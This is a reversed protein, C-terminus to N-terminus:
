KSSILVPASKQLCMGVELWWFSPPSWPRCRALIRTTGSLSWQSSTCDARDDLTTAGLSRTTALWLALACPLMDTQQIDVEKMNVISNKVKENGEVIIMAMLINSEMMERILRRLTTRSDREIRGDSILFVIQMSAVDRYPEDLLAMMASEVCLATRTRQQRFQFCSTVRIGSDNTFPQNFPHILQMEDGFSAIGVEGIELQSMGTALTAMAKLAMEGTGSKEMSESDDVAVLVRYNRKAPKTRRLWIKDKRYSSAIYGIVRKMNIRKGTRYDGRLKSAVLPEMVLRLKECLRRALPNTERQISGWRAKAEDHQMHSIHLMEESQVLRGTGTDMSGDAVYLQSLDSVARSTVNKSTDADYDDDTQAASISKEKADDNDDLGLEMQEPEDDSGRRLKEKGHVADSKEMETRNEARIKQERESEMKEVKIEEPRSNEDMAGLTQTSWKENEKAYEFDGLANDDSDRESHNMDVGDDANEVKSQVVNLRQHWFKKADGLSQSPYPSKEPFTAQTDDQFVNSLTSGQYSTPGSGNQVSEERANVESSERPSERPKGGEADEEAADDVVDNGDVTSVGLGSKMLDESSMNKLLQEAENGEQIDKSPDEDTNGGVHAASEEQPFQEDEEHEVDDDPDNTERDSQESADTEGLADESQRETTENKDDADEGNDELNLDDEIKMSEDDCKDPDGPDDDGQDLDGRDDRVEVGHAEERMDENEDNLLDQSASTEDPDNQDMGDEARSAPKEEQEQDDKRSAKDDKSVMENSEQMGKVGKGEEFKEDKSQNKDEEETDWMKEDVVQENEGPDDGMERDLEERQDEEDGDNDEEEEQDPVDYMEGEFDNEMEMGKEADEKDLKGSGDKQQQDLTSDDKTGLLQEENEIEDTVDVRGEGEGMGTGNTDEGFTLNGEGEGKAGEEVQDSCFGRALLTRFVRLIIYSLKACSRYFSIYHSVRHKIVTVARQCLLSVDASLSTCFNLTEERINPNLSIEHLENLVAESSAKLRSIQLSMLQISAKKHCTWILESEDDPETAVEQVRLLASEITDTCLRQFRNITEDHQDRSIPRENGTYITETCVDAAEAAKDIVAVCGAFCSDPLFGVDISTSRNNELISRAVYLKEKMLKIRNFHLSTALSQNIIPHFQSDVEDFWGSLESITRSAWPRGKNEDLLHKVAQVMLFLQWIAEKANAFLREFSSIRQATLDSIRMLEAGRFEFCQLTQSLERVNRILSTLTSRQQVLLYVTLDAYGLMTQRQRQTLDRCQNMNAEPRLRNLEVLCRLFYDECSRVQKFQSSTEELFTLPSPLHLIEGFKRFEEPVAWKMHSYGHRKLERFFDLLAREKMARPTNKRQLADIRGLVATSLEEAAIAGRTSVGNTEIKEIITSMREAYQPIRSIRTGPSCSGFNRLRWDTADLSTKVTDEPVALDENVSIPFVAHVPPVESSQSGSPDTSDKIGRNQDKELFVSTNTQLGEDYETLIGMLKRHNREVTDALAYYSQQDWKALKVEKKLKEECPRRIQTITERLFTSFQEYYQCLSLVTRSLVAAIASDQIGSDQIRGQQFFQVGFSQLIQLRPLAEALPSTLIFTDLAKVLEVFHDSVPNACCLESNSVVLGKLAWRPVWEVDHSNGISDFIDMSASSLFEQFIVHIRIWHRRAERDCKKERARLLNPWSQLELKRLDAVLRRIEGLSEGIQVRISAHQEWDQAHKLVEGLGALIAASSTHLVDLKRVRDAVRFLSLLVDNGPFLRLLKGVRGMLREFPASLKITQEPNPYSQFDEKRDGPISEVKLSTSEFQCTPTNLSIALVHSGVFDSSKVASRDSFRSSFIQAAARYCFQFAKIREEASIRCSSFMKGHLWALLECDKSSLSPSFAASDNSEIIEGTSAVDSRLSFEKRHDPFVERFRQEAEDQDTRPLCRNTTVGVRELDAASLIFEIVEAWARVAVGGMGQVKSVVLMRFLESFAMPMLCVWQERTPVSPFGTLMVGQTLYASQPFSFCFKMFGTLDLNSRKTTCSLLHNFGRAVLCISGLLPSVIDEYHRFQYSSRKCFANWSRFLNVARPMNLDRNEDHLLGMAVESIQSEDLFDKGFSHFERYLDAFPFISEPRLIIKQKQKSIKSNLRDVREAQRSGHYACAFNISEYITEAVVQHEISAVEREMLDVKAAPKRGPDIISRPLLLHFRLLGLFVDPLAWDESRCLKQDVSVVRQLADLLPKLVPDVLRSFIADSSQQCLKVFRDKLPEAFCDMQKSLHSLQDFHDNSMSGKLAEVTEQFLYIIEWHHVRPINKEFALLRLLTKAQSRRAESNEITIFSTAANLPPNSLVVDGLLLLVTETKIDTLAREGNPATKRPKQFSDDMILDAPIELEMSTAQLTTGPDSWVRQFSSILLQGLLERVFSKPKISVWGEEELAWKLGQYAGLDTTNAWSSELSMGLFTSIKRKASASPCLTNGSLSFTCAMDQCLTRLLEEEEQSCLSELLPSLQVKSYKRMLFDSFRGDDDDYRGAKTQRHDLAELDPQNYTMDADLRCRLSDLRQWFEIQLSFLRQSIQQVMQDGRDVFYDLSGGVGMSSLALQFMSVADVFEGKLDDVGVVAPHREFSLFSLNIQGGGQDEFKHLLDHASLSRGLEKMSLWTDWVRARRPVIPRLTRRLSLVEHPLEEGGCLIRDVRSVIANLPMASEQCVPVTEIAGMAKRFWIWQVAFDAFDFGFSNDQEKYPMREVLNWLQDRRQAALLMKQSLSGNTVKLARMVSGWWKDFRDFFPALLPTVHCNIMNRDIRGEAVLRSVLLVSRASVDIIERKEWVSERLSQNFRELFGSRLVADWDNEVTHSQISRAIYRSNRALSHDLGGLFHCRESKSPARRDSFFLLMLLVEVSYAGECNKFVRDFMPLAFTPMMKRLLAFNASPTESAQVGMFIQHVRSAWAAEAWSPRFAWDLIRRRVAPVTQLSGIIQGNAEVSPAIGRYTDSSSLLGFRKCAVDSRESELRGAEQLCRIGGMAAADVRDVLGLHTATDGNFCVEVCRNRMARSVEGAEDDMTLFVRFNPHCKVVRRETGREVDASSELLLLYGGPELVSNLRDLVSSPCLNAHRLHVWHGKTMAHVLPGDRFEFHAQTQQQRTKLPEFFRVLEDMKSGRNSGRQKSSTLLVSALDKAVERDVSRIARKSVLSQILHFFFYARSTSSARRNTESDVFDACCFDILSQVKEFEQSGQDAQEFSGLLESVDSSPTLDIEVVTANVLHALTFIVHDKLSEAPGVLLCPWRREVCRAVTELYESAGLLSGFVETKDRQYYDENNIRHLKVDGVTVWSQSVRVGPPQSAGNGEKITGLIGRFTSGMKDRDSTTRLRHIYIDRVHKTDYIFGQARTSSAVLECWRLVDRLNFEWPSGAHGYEATEVVEEHIKTNCAVMKCVLERPISPFKSSVILEQDESTLAEVFVKIFRNLFSKPLGKRGGGQGLPNQAAFVRFSAPCQVTKGIEPIFISARHDLISNLGELVSQSALNLEDLLVWHGSKIAALLVGDTWKFIAGTQESSDSVVPMDSGLLDSMDTQESLNIRVLHHGSAAAFASVLTTKGVGPSGELLIPKPLQMGRLIRTLNSLATSAEFNFDAGSLPVPGLPVKFSNIGFTGNAVTVESGRTPISERSLDLLSRLFQDARHKVSESDSKSLATGLGLGDLHMLCAGHYLADAVPIKTDPTICAEVFGAWTIIDRLSLNLESFSTSADNCLDNNFWDAYQLIVKTIESAAQHDLASGELSQKLVLGIDAMDAVPPVWIETFRSRLAPSLERKGFDGGPNMTAFLQYGDLATVYTEDGGGDSSVGKEALILTRDPELVSNLRELVADEALSIEDLLIMDGSKMAQVVPGDSWEFLAGYRKYTSEIQEALETVKLVEESSCEAHLDIDNTGEEVKQRKSQRRGSAASGCIYKRVSRCLDVMARVSDDSLTLAEINVAFVFEPVTFSERHCSVTDSALLQKLCRLIDRPLESRGRVPRMAGILDSTETTAHCNVVRLRSHMLEAILQVVTTKGCGTEGVLLVPERRNMCHRVLTLLRLLSKTQAINSGLKSESSHTLMQRAESSTSFYLSDPVVQVKFQKEIEHLVRLKEEKTRLREALLMYGEQALEIKSSAGRHAWRLLDRSTMFGDKGLFVSTSNRQQQLSKMISVLIKAHSPAVGARLELITILETPPMDGVFIEVFRNRFARSLHKRGGYAGSPNQTAFLRFSPHPRVVENTEPICLERNDDLLRNLAELVESPALNLEDLIVWDGNRLARVLLGDNFGLNGNENSAFGGTYEQIDTHEHNNIRITRHGCLAACYEVLTTKGASTPGELLIPWPGSAIARALRRLNKKATPTLIFRPKESQIPTAWDSCPEPGKLIWFPQVSVYQGSRARGGPNRGPHDRERSTMVGGLYKEFVHALEGVSSLDLSGQFTLEFGELLARQLSLKQQEVFNRAATLARAFSRLSYRPKHGAGDVLVSEALSRSKLYVSVVNGVVETNEPATGSGNLCSGIYRGAIVRLELPDLIEDVHFETFRSRISPPLDKKGADTAPNMAAFLRFGAHRKVSVSDGRETLTLSSTSDDLLGCLRQLTESSALNIEDLLIWKGTKIAEVLIGERFVFALGTECAIQQQQFREAQDMFKEWDELSKRQTVDAKVRAKVKNLGMKAARQFCDALRAWQEKKLCASTFNLFAENQKRSFSSTFLDVFNQYVSQAVQRIELPQFGGLLDTSDTQLSLNQVVLPHGCIRALQQLISTKGGGTEGVLLVPENERICVGISEMMRLTSGTCAFANSEPEFNKLSTGLAVRGIHVMGDHQQMSPSRSELMRLAIDATLNWKPAACSRVFERRTESEPCAAAFADFTEALCMLRQQETLFSSRSEIVVSKSIRSMVKFLDRVSPSRGNLLFKSLQATAYTNEGKPPPLSNFDRGSNDLERFINLTADVVFEPLVPHTNQAIDKLETMPLPKAEVKMWLHEHFVKRIKMASKRDTTTVTAFLRFNPHCREVKGNGLSLVRDKLLRVLSAQVDISVSDLDEFLVWKGERVAVTLAGPRWVFEGPIDTTTCCGVLTKTDTEDDVHIELLYDDHRSQETGSGAVLRALERILSSKGAGPSGHVLIPPPYPNICLVRAISILNQSTTPTQVLRLRSTETLTTATSLNNRVLIRGGGCDVLFPHLSWVKRIQEASPRDFIDDKGDETKRWQIQAKRQFALRQTCTEERHVTFPHMVWPVREAYMKSGFKKIYKAKAAPTLNLSYAITRVTNWLTAEEFTFSPDYTYTEEEVDRRMETEDDPLWEFVPSWKWFMMLGEYNMLFTVYFECIQHTAEMLVFRQAHDQPQQELPCQFSSQSFLYSAMPAIQPAVPLWVSFLLWAAVSTSQPIKDCEGQLDAAITSPPEQQERLISCVHAAVDLQLPAMARLIDRLYDVRRRQYPVGLPDDDEPLDCDRQIPPIPPLSQASEALSAIDCVQLLLRALTKASVIASETTEVQMDDSRKDDTTSSCRFFQLADFIRGLYARIMKEESKTSDHEGGSRSLGHSGETTEEQEIDM